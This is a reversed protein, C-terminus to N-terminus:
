RSFRPYPPSQVCVIRLQANQVFNATQLRTARRLWIKRRSRWYGSRQFYWGSCVALPTQGPPLVEIAPWLLTATGPDANWTQRLQTAISKVTSDLEASDVAPAAAAAAMPALPSTTGLLAGLAASGLHKRM